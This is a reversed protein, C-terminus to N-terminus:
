ATSEITDDDGLMIELLEALSEAEDDSLRDFMPHGALRQHISARISHGKETLVLEKVRRDSSSPVRTVLSLEELRDALATVYSADVSLRDAMHGMPCGTELHALVLGMPQTLDHEAMVEAFRHRMAEGVRRMLVAVRTRDPSPSSQGNVVKSELMM